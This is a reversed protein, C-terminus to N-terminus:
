KSKKRNALEIKYLMNLQERVDKKEFDKYAEEPLGLDKTISRYAKNREEQPAEKLTGVQMKVQEELTPENTKVPEEQHVEVPEHVEEAEVVYEPERSDEYNEKIENKTEPKNGGFINAAIGLESAVYMETYLDQKDKPLMAILKRPDKVVCPVLFQKKFDDATLTQPIQPIAKFIARTVANSEALSQARKRRGEKMETKPTGDKNVYKRTDEEFDWTGVTKGERKTGDVNLVEWKIQVEVYRIRQKDDFDRRITRSDTIKFGAAQAIENLKKLHLVRTEGQKIIGNRKDEEKEWGTPSFTDEKSFTIATFNLENFKVGGFNLTRPMVPIIEDKHTDLFELLQANNEIKKTAIDNTLKVLETGM